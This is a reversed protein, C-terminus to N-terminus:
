MAVATKQNTEHDNEYYYIQKKKEKRNKIMNKEQEKNKEAGKTGVM